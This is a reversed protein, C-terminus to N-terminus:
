GCMNNSRFSMIEVAPELNDICRVLGNLIGHKDVSQRSDSDRGRARRTVFDFMDRKRFDGNMSGRGGGAAWGHGVVLTTQEELGM